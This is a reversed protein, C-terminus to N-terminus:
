QEPVILVETARIVPITCDTPPFAVSDLYRMNGLGGTVVVMNGAEPAPTGTWNVRVGTVDPWTTDYFRSGDDLYFFGASSAYTCRGWVCVAAGHLPVGIGALGKPLPQPPVFSLLTQAFSTRINTQNTGATRFTNQEGLVIVADARITRECNLSCIGGQVEVEDGVALETELGAADVAPLGNSIIVRVGIAPDALPDVLYLVPATGETPESVIATIVGTTSVRAGEEAARVEAIPGSVFTREPPIALTGPDHAGAAIGFYDWSYTIQETSERCGGFALIATGGYDQGFVEQQVGDLYGILYVYNVNANPDAQQWIIGPVMKVWVTHWEGYDFATPWTFGSRENNIHLKGDTHYRLKIMPRIKYHGGGPKVLDFYFQGRLWRISDGVAATPWSDVRFRYVLTAGENTGPFYDGWGASACTAPVPAELGNPCYLVWECQSPTSTEVKTMRIAKGGVDNDIISWHWTTPSFEPPAAYSDHWRVAAAQWGTSSPTCRPDCAGDYYFQWEAAAASSGLAVLLLAFPLARRM